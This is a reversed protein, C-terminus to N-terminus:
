HYDVLEVNFANGQEFKFCIRWQNNVRISYQGKRDGTLKELRNSAPLKLDDLDVANDIQVLRMLVRVVLQKEIRKPYKGEAISQTTKNAYTKIM